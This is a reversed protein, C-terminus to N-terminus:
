TSANDFFEIVEGDPGVIFSLRVPLPSPSRPQTNAIAVDKPEVRVACGAARARATMGDGDSTRIALHLLTDSGEVPAAADPREFLEVHNGGGFDLMIARGPAEGWAVTPVCGLVDQYFSVSRDFDRVRLAVHHFGVRRAPESMASVM